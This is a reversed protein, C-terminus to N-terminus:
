SSDPRLCPLLIQDRIREVLGAAGDPETFSMRYLILAPLVDAVLELDVDVRVEGREQARHLVERLLAQRPALFRAFLAARLEADRHIATSLSCLVGFSEDDVGEGHPGEALQALDGALTGTDPIGPLDGKLRAVADVVLEAKGSWRRYLTAKSARCRAAVADLTLRDYGSDLLLRLTADFIEQERDGEVRPRPAPPAPDSSPSLTM